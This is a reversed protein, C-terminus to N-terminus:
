LTINFYGKAMKIDFKIIVHELVSTYDNEIMMRLVKEGDIRSPVGSVRAAYVVEKWADEGKVVEFNWIKPKVAKIKM